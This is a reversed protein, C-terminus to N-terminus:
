LAYLLVVEVLEVCLPMILDLSKQININKICMYVKRVSIETVLAYLLVFDVLEVCSPM